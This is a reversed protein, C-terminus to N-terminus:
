PGAGIGRAALVRALSKLARFQLAKVAGENRGVVVAVEAIPLGHLFRLQLVEQQEPTLEALAARLEDGEIRGLAEAEPSSTAQEVPLEEVVTEWRVRGSKVHDLHINRGIRLVWALFDRSGGEFGGIARLARMFTESTLDEALTKDRCRSRLHSFVIPLSARFLSAFADQNGERAEAVLRDAEESPIGVAPSTSSGAM